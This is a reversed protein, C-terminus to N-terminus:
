RSTRRQLDILSLDNDHRDLDHFDEIARLLNDGIEPAPGGRRLVNSVRDVGFEEGIDNRLEMPPVNRMAANGLTVIHYM